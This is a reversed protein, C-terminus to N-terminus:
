RSALFNGSNYSVPLDMVASVVVRWRDRDQALEIWDMGECRVEQLDMKINDEWRRRPRGLPRKGESRGVLVRYVGRRKGMGAVHGAWRMRRSKTVRINNPSCYRDNLEENHLKRWEGTVEDRNPGFIRRLVRNEFVRLRREERLTFSWTECGYLVVPLIMTRYIKNNKNKFTFSASFFLEADFSDRGRVPFTFQGGTTMIRIV